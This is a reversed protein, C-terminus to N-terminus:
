RDRDAELWTPSLRRTRHLGASALASTLEAETLVRATFPQRVVRGGADFVSVASVFPPDRRVDVMGPQGGATAPTEAATSAWDVPHHEVLVTGGAPADSIHRRALDLLAIGGAPDPLNVLHSGLVVVPARLGLDLTGLPELPIDPIITAQVAGDLSYGFESLAGAIRGSVGDPASVGNPRRRLILLIPAPEIPATM